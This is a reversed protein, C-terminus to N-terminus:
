AKEGNAAAKIADALDHVKKQLNDFSTQANISNINISNAMSVAAADMNSSTDEAVEGVIRNYEDMNGAMNAAVAAYARDEEMGAEILRHLLENAISLRYQAVEKTINM